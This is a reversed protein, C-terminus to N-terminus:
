LSLYEELTIGKKPSTDDDLFEMCWVELSLLSYIRYGHSGLECLEYDKYTKNKFDYFISDLVESDFWGRNKLRKLLNDLLKPRPLFLVHWPVDFSQQLNYIHEKSFYKGLALKHFRRKLAKNSLKQFTSGDNVWNEPLSTIFRLLSQNLYPSYYNIGFNNLTKETSLNTYMFVGYFMKAEILADYFNNKNFPL